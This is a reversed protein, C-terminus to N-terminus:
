NNFYKKVLMSVILRFVIIFIGVVLFKSVDGGYIFSISGYGFYCNIVFVMSKWWRILCWNLLVWIEIKWM